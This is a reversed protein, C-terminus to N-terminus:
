QSYYCQPVLLIAVYWQAWRLFLPIQNIKIFFGAFLLQPVFVLPTVQMAVETSQALSGLLLASASSVLGLVWYCLILVILSGQFAILWYTILLAIVASVLSLPLEVAMKSVFYASGSYTNTAYERLFIPRELPFALIMPQASGFMAGIFIQVLAGYHTTIDEGVGSNMYILGYLLNLFIPISYRAILGGRNRTVNLMERRLLLWLQLLWGGEIHRSACLGNSALYAIAKQKESRVETEKGAAKSEVPLAALNFARVKRLAEQTEMQLKYMVFDSPNYNPPIPFGAHAFAAALGSTPGAYVIEGRALFICKQFHAFIESSPQHITCLVLRGTAAVEHLMQVTTLAGFSDLGSTPEDLFIIDPDNVLEVGIATRKKEGGSLGKVYENGVYTDACARLRLTDIREEVRADKVARPESRPRRLYASFRLSERPTTFPLLADQQMVYAVESRFAAPDIESGDLLVRGTITKQRDASVRGALINLLSTKGAGSPGMIAVVEGPNIVASISKLIQREGAAFSLNEFALTQRKGPRSTPAASGGMAISVDQQTSTVQSMPVPTTRLHGDVPTSERL